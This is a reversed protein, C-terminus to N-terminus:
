KHISIVLCIIAMSEELKPGEQQEEKPEPSLGEVSTADMGSLVFLVTVSITVKLPLLYKFFVVVILFPPGPDVIKIRDVVKSGTSSDSFVSSAPDSDEEGFGILVGSAGDTGRGPSGRSDESDECVPFLILSVSVAADGDRGSVGDVESVPYESDEGGGLFSSLSLSSIVEGAVEYDISTAEFTKVFANSTKSKLFLVELM